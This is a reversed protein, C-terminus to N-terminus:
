KTTTETWWNPSSVEVGDQAALSNALNLSPFGPETEVFFGNPLFGLESVRDLKIANRSFFANTQSRTWEADLVLLVGGPLAMLAGSESRFVPQDDSKAQAGADRKVVSGEGVSAAVIDGSSSDASKQVVLDAQLRVTLTRDGDKWTYAQGQSSESDKSSDKPEIDTTTDFQAPDKQGPSAVPAIVIEVAPDTSPGPDDAPESSTTAGVQAPAAEQLVSVPSTALPAPSGTPPLSDDTSSPSNTGVLQVPSEQEPTPKQAITIKAALVTTPNADVEQGSGATAALQAPAKQSPAPEAATTVMAAPATATSSGAKSAPSTTVALQPPVKQGTGSSTQTVLMAAPASPAEPGAEPDSSTSAAVQTQTVKDTTADTATTARTAPENCAVSIVAGFLLLAIATRAVSQLDLRRM